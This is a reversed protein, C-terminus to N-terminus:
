EAEALIGAASAGVSIGCAKGLEAMTPVWVLEVCCGACMDALPDILRPDADQAAFVRIIKGEQLARRLQKIGVVKGHTNLQELM